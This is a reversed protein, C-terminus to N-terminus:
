PPASKWQKKINSMEIFYQIRHEPHSKWAIKIAPLRKFLDVRTTTWTSLVRNENATMLVLEARKVGRSPLTGVSAHGVAFNELQVIGAWMWFVNETEYNWNYDYFRVALSGKAYLTVNVRITYLGGPLEYGPEPYEGRAIGVLEAKGPWPNMLPYRDRNGNGLITYPIDGIEDSGPLNQNEGQYIDTGVYDSWYNGGFLYGNDWYNTGSDYAQNENNELNNWYIYNNDSNERLEIGYINNSIENSIIVNNSSHKWIEIGDSNRLIRNNAIINNDSHVVYIAGRNNSLFNNIIQSNRTYALEM